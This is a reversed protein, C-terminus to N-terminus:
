CLSKNLNDGVFLATANVSSFEGLSSLNRVERLAGGGKYSPCLFHGINCPSTCGQYQEATVFIFCYKSDALM